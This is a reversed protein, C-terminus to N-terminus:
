KTRKHSCTYGKLRILVGKKKKKDILKFLQGDKSEIPLIAMVEGDIQIANSEGIEIPGDVAITTIDKKAM